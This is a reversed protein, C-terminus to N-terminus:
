CGTRWPWCRAPTADYLERLAPRDQLAICTLVRNLQVADPAGTNM